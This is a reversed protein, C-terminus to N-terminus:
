IVTIHIDSWISLYPHGAPGMSATDCPIHCRIYDIWVPYLNLTSCDCLQQEREQRCVHSTHSHTNDLQFSGIIQQFWSKNNCNHSLFRMLKNAAEPRGGRRQWLCNHSSKVGEEKSSITRNTLLEHAHKAAANQMLYKCGSTSVIVDGLLKKNKQLTSELLFFGQVIIHVAAPPCTHLFSRRVIIHGRTM